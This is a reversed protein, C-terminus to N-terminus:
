VLFSFKNIYTPTSLPASGLGLVVTTLYTRPVLLRSILQPVVFSISLHATQLFNLHLLALLPQLPLAACLQHRHSLTVSPTVRLHLTGIVGQHAWQSDTM